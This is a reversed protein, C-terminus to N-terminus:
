VNQYRVRTNEDSSQEATSIELLSTNPQNGVISSTAVAAGECPDSSIDTEDLVEGSIASPQLIV